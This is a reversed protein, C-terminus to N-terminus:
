AILSALHTNYICCCFRGNHLPHLGGDDRAQISAGASLLFEVVEKRGYGLIFLHLKLGSCFPVKSGSCYGVKVNIFTCNRVVIITVLFCRSYVPNEYPYRSELIKYIGASFHLPTSKRGATDRANVTQPNQEVLKKVKALEGTKCFEFLERLPDASGSLSEVSSSLGCRRSSM